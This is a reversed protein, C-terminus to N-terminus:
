DAPHSSWHRNITSSMDYAQTLERFTVNPRLLEMLDGLSLNIEAEDLGSKRLNTGIGLALENDDGRTLMVMVTRSEGKENTMTLGEIFTSM